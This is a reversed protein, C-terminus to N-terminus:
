SYERSLNQPEWESNGATCSCFPKVPPARVFQASVLSQKEMELSLFHMSLFITVKACLIFNM